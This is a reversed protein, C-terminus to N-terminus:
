HFTLILIFLPADISVQARSRLDSIIGPLEGSQGFWSLCELWHLFHVKLFRHVLGDDDIHVGCRTLHWVWYCCAYRMEPAFAEDLRKQSVDSRLLGPQRSALMDQKMGQSQMLYQLCQEMIHQHMAGEDICFHDEVSTDECTEDVLLDRFSLHFLRIPMTPDKPVQLVSHLYRLRDSITRLPLEFLNGLSQASLPEALSVIVGVLEKFRKVAQALEEGKRDSVVQDLIPAYTKYLGSMSKYNQQNLVKHLRGEPDEESIFLCLTFAAIFLPTALTM